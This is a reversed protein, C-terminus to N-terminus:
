SVSLTGDFRCEYAELLDTDGGFGHRGLCSSSTVMLSLHGIPCPPGDAPTSSACLCCWRRGFLGAWWPGVTRIPVRSAVAHPRPRADHMTQV